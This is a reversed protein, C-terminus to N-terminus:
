EKLEARVQTFDHEVNFLGVAPCSDLPDGSVLEAQPVGRPEFQIGCSCSFKIM